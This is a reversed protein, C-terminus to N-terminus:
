MPSETLAKKLQNFANECEASWEFKVDKSLLRNLPQAIQAFGRVFKRYYNCLGHYARVDKQSKPRPYSLVSTIKDENVMIGEKTFKHGM